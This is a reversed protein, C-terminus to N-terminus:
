ASHRIPPHHHPPRGVAEDLIHGYGNALLSVRLRPGPANAKLWVRLAAAQKEVSAENVNLMRLLAPATDPGRQGIRSLQKPTTMKVASREINVAIL